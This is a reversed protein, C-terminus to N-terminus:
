KGEKTSLGQLRCLRAFLGDKTLLEKWTGQEVVKGGAMALIQDAHEITTLRHAVIFTIRGVMLRELAGKIQAESGADLASTPEDLILIPADKLFARAISIRQKQGGSLRDGAEGVPTDLGQPLSDIFETLASDEIAKRVAEESANPCGYTINARITDDFLFVDQAVIAIQARLSELSYERSDVGNILIRGATPSWFRPIMNAMSTKGSGSLGVLATAQGRTVTFSVDDVSNADANPYRLTVGEFAINEIDRGLVKTGEDREEKLDLTSFLSEAAVAMMVFSANLGALHRLPPMILLLAALFTVFEGVTLLGTQTQYMAVTLVVAVAAMCLLQTLPTGLSSAKTMRIMLDKIEANLKEFRSTEAGYANSIKILREAGYAERVRVLLEAINAQSSSMVKKMRASISRLLWAVMPAIVLSILALQWNKWFLVVTLSVVQISDRILTISAKAANSLAFNAEFVFKSTVLGTSNAQYTEMPWHLMRHFMEGRLKVLIAQSVRGLLYNSGFMCGGHLLSVLILGIPAALVVWAEQNYFGADTLKGLLTAILSSSAGAGLMCFVALIIKWKHAPLHSALRMLHPNKLKEHLRSFPARAAM